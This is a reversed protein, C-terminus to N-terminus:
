FYFILITLKLCKIFICVDALVATSFILSDSKEEDTLSKHNQLVSKRTPLRRTPIAARSVTLHVLPNQDNRKIGDFLEKLSSAFINSSSPLSKRTSARKKDSCNKSSEALLQEASDNEIDSCSEFNGLFIFSSRLDEGSSDYFTLIQSPSLIIRTFRYNENFSEFDIMSIGITKRMTESRGDHLLNETSNM